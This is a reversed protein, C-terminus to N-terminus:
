ATLPEPAGHEERGVSWDEARHWTVREIGPLSKLSADLAKLLKRVLETDALGVEPGRPTCVFILWDEGRFGSCVHLRERAGTVELLAGWDEDIVGGLELGQRQLDEAIRELIGRGCTVTEDLSEDLGVYREAGFFSVYSRVGPPDSARTAPRRQSRARLWSLLGVVLAMSALVALVAVVAQAASM